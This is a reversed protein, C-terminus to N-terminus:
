DNEEGDDDNGDNDGDDDNDEEDDHECNDKSSHDNSKDDDYDDDDDDDNDDDDEDDNDDDDDTYTVKLNDLIKLKAEKTVFQLKFINKLYRLDQKKLSAVSEIDIGDVDVPKTTYGPAINQLVRKSNESHLKTRRKRAKRQNQKKKRKQSKDKRFHCNFMSMGKEILLGIKEHIGNIQKQLDLMTSILKTNFSHEVEKGTILKQTKTFNKNDIDKVTEIMEETDKKLKKIKDENQGLIVSDGPKLVHNEQLLQGTSSPDNKNQIGAVKKALAEVKKKLDYERRGESHFLKVFDKSNKCWKFKSKYVDPLIDNMFLARETKPHPQWGFTTSEWPKKKESSSALVSIGQMGQQPGGMNGQTRRFRRIEIQSFGWSQLDEDKIDILHAVKKVGNRLFVGSYETLDCTNLFELVSSEKDMRTASDAM